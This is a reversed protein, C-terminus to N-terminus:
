KVKIMVPRALPKFDYPVQDLVKIGVATHDTKEVDNAIFEEVSPTEGAVKMIREYILYRSQTNFYMRNDEGCEREIFFVEPLYGWM